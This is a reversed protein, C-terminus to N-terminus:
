VLVVGSVVEASTTWLQEEILHEHEIVEYQLLWCTKKVM